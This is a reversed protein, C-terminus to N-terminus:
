DHFQESPNILLMRAIIPEPGILARLGLQHVHRAIGALKSTSYDGTAVMLLDAGLMIQSAKNTPSIAVERFGHECIYEYKKDPQIPRGSRSECTFDIGYGLEDLLTNEFIRLSPAIRRGLPENASHERSASDLRGLVELVADFVRPESQYEGTARKLIEMVYFGASLIDVSLQYEFKAEFGTVNVLTSRGSTSLNALIFPEVRQRVRGTRLGKMVGSFRGHERTFFQVLVSTERYPRVHLVLANLGQARM